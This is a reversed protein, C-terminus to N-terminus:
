KKLVLALWYSPTRFDGRSNPHLNRGNARRAPLSPANRWPHQPPKSNSRDVARRAPSSPADRWDTP